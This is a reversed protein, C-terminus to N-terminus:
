KKEDSTNCFYIENKIASNELERKLVDPPRSPDQWNVEFAAWFVRCLDDTNQQHHPKSCYIMPINEVAFRDTSGEVLAPLLKYELSCSFGEAILKDMAIRVTSGKFQHTKEFEKRIAILADAQRETKDWLQAGGKHFSTETSCSICAILLMVVLAFRQMVVKPILRLQSEGAIKNVSFTMDEAFDGWAAGSVEWGSGQVVDRV